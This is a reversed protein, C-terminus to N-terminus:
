ILNDDWSEIQYWIFILISPVETLWMEPEIVSIQSKLQDLYLTPVPGTAPFYKPRNCSFILEYEGYNKGSQSLGPLQQHQQVGAHGLRSDRLASQVM